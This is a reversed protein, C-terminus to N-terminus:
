EEHWGALYANDDHEMRLPSVSACLRGDASRWVCGAAPGPGPGRLGGECDECDTDKAGVRPPRWSCCYPRSSSGRTPASLGPEKVPSCVRPAHRPTVWARQNECTEGASYVSSSLTESRPTQMRPHSLSAFKFAKMFRPLQSETRRANGKSCKWSWMGMKGADTRKTTKSLSLALHYTRGNSWTVLLLILSRNAPATPRNAHSM